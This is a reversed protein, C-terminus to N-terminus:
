ANRVEADTVLAAKAIDFGNNSPGDFVSLDHTRTHGEGQTACRFCSWRAESAYLGIVGRLRENEEGLRSVEDCLAPIDQKANAIFVANPWHFLTISEGDRNEIHGHTTYWEGTTAARERGRIEAIQERTLESM